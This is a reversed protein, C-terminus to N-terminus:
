GVVMVVMLVVWGGDDLFVWEIGFGNLRLGM